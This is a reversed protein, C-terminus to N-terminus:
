SRRQQHGRVVKEKPHRCHTKGHTPSGTKRRGHCRRTPYHLAAASRIPLSSHNPNKIMILNHQPSVIVDISPIELNGDFIIFGEPRPKFLFIDAIEGLPGFTDQLITSQLPSHTLTEPLIFQVWTLAPKMDLIHVLQPQQEARETTHINTLKDYVGLLTGKITILFGWTLVPKMDLIHVLQPQQEARETTHINTLKDYVGLLTGKITILFGLRLTEFQVIESIMVDFGPTFTEPQLWEEPWDLLMSNRLLRHMQQLIKSDVTPIAENPLEELMMTLRHCTSNHSLLHNELEPQTASLGDRKENWPAQTLFEAIKGCGEAILWGKPQEITKSRMEREAQTDQSYKFTNEGEHGKQTIKAYRGGFPHYRPALHTMSM